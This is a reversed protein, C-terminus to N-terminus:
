PEGPGLLGVGDQGILHAKALGNLGDGEQVSKHFLHTWTICVSYMDAQVHVINYMGTEVWM